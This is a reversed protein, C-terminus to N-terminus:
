KNKSLPLHTINAKQTRKFILQRTKNSISMLTSEKTTFDSDFKIEFMKEIRQLLQILHAADIGLESISCDKHTPIPGYEMEKEIIKKIKNYLHM